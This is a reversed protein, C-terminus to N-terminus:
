LFIVDFEHVSTLMGQVVDMQEGVADAFKHCKQIEERQRKEKKAIKAAEAPDAKSLLNQLHQITARNSLQNIKMSPMRVGSSSSDGNFLEEQIKRFYNECNGVTELVVKKPLASVSVMAYPMGEFQPLEKLTELLLQTKENNVKQCGLNHNCLAM